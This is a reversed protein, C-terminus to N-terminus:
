QVGGLPNCDMCPRLGLAVVEDVVEQFPVQDAWLWRRVHGPRAWQCDHRHIRIGNLSRVLNRTTGFGSL